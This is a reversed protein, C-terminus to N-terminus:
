PDYGPTITTGAFSEDVVLDEGGDLTGNTNADYGVKVNSFTSDFATLGVGGAALDSDTADIRLTGDVWIKISSGAVGAKLTVSSDPPSWGTEDVVTRKGRVVKFLFLYDFGPGDDWLCAEYYNDPDTYRLAVAAFRDGGSAVDTQVLFDDDGAWELLAMGSWGLTKVQLTGNNPDLTTDATSV